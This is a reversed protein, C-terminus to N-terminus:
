SGGSDTLGANGTVSRSPEPPPCGVPRSTASQAWCGVTPLASDNDSPRGILRRHRRESVRNGRNVLRDVESIPQYGSYRSGFGARILTGESDVLRWTIDTAATVHYPIAGLSSFVNTQTYAAAEQRPISVLLVLGTGIRRAMEKQSLVLQLRDGDGAKYSGTFADYAAIAADIQGCSVLAGAYLAQLAAKADDKTADIRARMIACNGRSRELEGRLQALETLTDEVGKRTDRHVRLGDLTQLRGNGAWLFASVLTADEPKTLSVGAITTSTQLWSLASAAINTLTAGPVFSTLAQSAFRESARPRPIDVEIKGADDLFTKLASTRLDFAQAEADSPLTSGAAVAVPLKKEDIIPGVSEVIESAAFQVQLTALILAEPEGAGAEAKTVGATPPDPIISARSEAEKAQFDAIEARLKADDRQQQLPSPPAAPQTPADQGWVPTALLGLAVATATWKTM